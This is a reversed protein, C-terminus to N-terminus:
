LGDMGDMYWNADIGDACGLSPQPINDAGQEVTAVYSAQTPNSKRYTGSGLWVSVCPRLLTRAEWLQLLSILELRRPDYTPSSVMLLPAALTALVSMSVGGAFLRMFLAYSVFTGTWLGLVVVNLALQVYHWRRSKSFLPVIAGLLVVVVAAIGGVTWGKLSADAAVESADDSANGIAQKQKAYALGRQVNAIIAKSSFTAGSVADVKEAMAEDVSKGQWRALLTKAREFFDPSEANPEAKIATVVGDRSIHLRLPVPGGYGQIDKALPKTNVVISGDPHVSLTDSNVAVAASTAQVDHRLDHGFLKGDRLIAAASLVLVVVFLSLLRPIFNKNQRM